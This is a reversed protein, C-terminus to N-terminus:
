PVPAFGAPTGRYSALQVEANLTFPGMPVSGSILVPVGTKTDFWISVTGHIGFLGQFDEPKANEGKAPQSKLLIESADFRGADVKVRKTRGRSVTLDWLQEEDIMPFKVENVGLLLMSRGLTVATVMDVTGEPLAREQYDRWVRHEARKCKEFHHAKNWSWTPEVFHQQLECGWCHGDARYRTFYEPEGGPEEGEAPPKLGILQERRRSETGTQTSRHVIHPWAQPLIMSSRVELLNYVAYGGKATASLEAREGDVSGPQRALLASARFPSVKSELIVTGVDPSVLGLNLRVNFTLEENRSILLPLLGEGREVRLLDALRPDAQESQADQARALGSLLGLCLLARAGIRRVRRSTAASM